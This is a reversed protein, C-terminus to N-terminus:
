VLPFYLNKISPAANLSICLYPLLLKFVLFIIHAITVVFKM